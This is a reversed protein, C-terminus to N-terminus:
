SDKVRQLHIYAQLKLRPHKSSQSCLLILTLQHSQTRVLFRKEGEGLHTQHDEPTSSSISDPPLGDQHKRQQANTTRRSHKPQTLLQPHQNKHPTTSSHKRATDHSDVKNERENPISHPSPKIINQCDMFRSTLKLFSQHYIIPINILIM